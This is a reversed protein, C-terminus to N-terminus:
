TASAEETGVVFCKLSLDALACQCMTMVSVTSPGGAAGTM